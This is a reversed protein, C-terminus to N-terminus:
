SSSSSSSVGGPRTGLVSPLAAPSCRYSVQSSEPLQPALRSIDAQHDCGGQLECGGQRAGAPLQVHDPHCSQCSAPQRHPVAHSSQFEWLEWGETRWRKRTTLVCTQDNPFYIHLSRCARSMDPRHLHKSTACALLIM